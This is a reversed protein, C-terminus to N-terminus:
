KVLLTLDVTLDPLIGVKVTHDFTYIDPRGYKKGRQLRFVMLVRDLPQVIWYEKVGFEEYKSCKERMDKHVAM